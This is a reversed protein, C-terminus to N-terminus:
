SVPDRGSTTRQVTELAAIPVSLVQFFILFFLPERIM